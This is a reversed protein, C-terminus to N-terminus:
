PTWGQFDATVVLAAGESEFAGYAIGIGLRVAKDSLLVARHTPSALWWALVARVPTTTGAIWGLAEGAWNGPAGAAAIRRAFARHAFYGRRIMDVSHARAAERLRADPRLPPLDHELRVSNIARVFSQELRADSAAAPPALLLTAAAIPAASAAGIARLHRAVRV